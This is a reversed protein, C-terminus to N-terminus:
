SQKQEASSGLQFVLTVSRSYHRALLLLQISITFFQRCSNGSFFDRYFFGSSLLQSRTSSFGAKSLNVINRKSPKPAMKGPKCCQSSVANHPQVLRGVPEFSIKPAHHQM